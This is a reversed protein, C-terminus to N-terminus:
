SQLSFMKVKENLNKQTERFINFMDISNLREYENMIESQKKKMTKKTMKIKIPIKQFFLNKSTKPKTKSLVGVNSSFNFSNMTTSAYEFEKVLQFCDVKESTSKILCKKNTLEDFNVTTTFWDLNSVTNRDNLNNTAQFRRTKIVNSTMPRVKGRKFSDLSDNTDSTNLKSQRNKFAIQKHAQDNKLENLVRKSESSYDFHDICKDLMKKECVSSKKSSSTSNTAVSNSRFAPNMFSNKENLKNFTRIENRKLPSVKKLENFSKENLQSESTEMEMFNRLLSDTSNGFRELQQSKEFYGTTKKCNRLFMILETSMRHHKVRSKMEEMNLKELQKSLLSEEFKNVRYKTDFLVHNNVINLYPMTSTSM